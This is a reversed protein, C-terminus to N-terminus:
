ETLKYLGYVLGQRYKDDSFVRKDDRLVLAIKNQTLTYLRLLKSRILTQQKTICISNCLANYYDRFTLQHDVICYQVGKARKITLEPHLLLAYCKGSLSIFKSIYRTSIENKFKGIVNENTPDYLPSDNSYNSLDFFDKNTTLFTDIDDTTIDLIFSDADMYLLDFQIPTRPETPMSFIRPLIEYLTEYMYLKSLELVAAGIQIPKNLEITTKYKHIGILNEKFIVSSKFFPSAIHKRAKREDVYLNFNLRKEVREITKGYLSNVTLKWTNKEHKDKAERRKRTNLEVYPQIFAEQYFSIARHVKKM